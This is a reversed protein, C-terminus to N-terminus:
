GLASKAATAIVLSKSPKVKRVYVILPDYAIQKATWDYMSAATKLPIRSRYPIYAYGETAAEQWARYRAIQYRMFDSFQQENLRATEPKLDPLGFRELDESPFYCRGMATDEAVDRVFNIWQMARGQLMAAEYSEKPLGMVKAMMLGIVEASGYVYALSDDVTGFQHRHLDSEMADLFASTWAPEFDYKRSVAVINKVVRQDTTDSEAPRPDFKSDILAQETAVRLSRFDGPRPPVSDVYDDAVRVFSYLRFVDDRVEPAFFKSSWYYTTSGQQFIRQERSAMAVWYLM